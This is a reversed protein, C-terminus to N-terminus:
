DPKMTVVDLDLVLTAAVLAFRHNFSTARKAHLNIPRPNLVQWIRFVKEHKIEGGGGVKPSRKAWIVTFTRWRGNVQELADSNLDTFGPILLHLVLLCNM